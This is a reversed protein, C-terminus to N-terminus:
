INYLNIIQKIEDAWINYGGENLHVGDTTFESKLEDDNSLRSNLDIYQVRHKDSYEILLENLKKVDKNIEKYGKRDDWTDGAKRNIYLTLNIVPIANKSKAFEVIEIFENYLKDVDTKNTSNIDNIGGEIIWIKANTNELYKLRECICHLVDGSIGRNAVDDRQLLANWDGWRILSNGIMLIKASDSTNTYHFDFHKLSYLCEPQVKNIKNYIKTGLDGKKFAIVFAIILIINIVISLKLIKRGNM